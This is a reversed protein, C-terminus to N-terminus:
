QAPRREDIEKLIEEAWRITDVIACMTAPVLKGGDYQNVGYNGARTQPRLGRFACYVKRGINEMRNSVRDHAGKM